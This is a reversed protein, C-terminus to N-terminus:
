MIYVVGSNLLFTITVDIHRYRAMEDRSRGKEQPLKQFKIHSHHRKVPSAHFLM